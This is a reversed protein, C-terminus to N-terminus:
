EAPGKCVANGAGSRHAFITATIALGSPSTCIKWLFFPLLYGQMAGDPLARSEPEETDWPSGPLQGAHSGHNYHSNATVSSFSVTPTPHGDNTRATLRGSPTTSSIKLLMRRRLGHPTRHSLNTPGPAALRSWCHFKSSFVFWPAHM